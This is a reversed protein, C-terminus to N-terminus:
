QLSWRQGRVFIYMVDDFCSGRIEKYGNLAPGNKDSAQM